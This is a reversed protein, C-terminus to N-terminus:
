GKEGAAMAALMWAVLFGRASWAATRGWNANVLLAHASPLFQAELEHHLPLLLFDTLAWVGALLLAGSWVQLATVGRPRRWLLFLATLAELVMPPGVVWPTLRMHAAHYAAFAASEARALQPYAVIQVFWIVGAMYWTCAAHAILVLSL